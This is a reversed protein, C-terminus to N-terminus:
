RVYLAEPSISREGCGVWQCTLNDIHGSPPSLPAQPLQQVQQAQQQQTAQLLSAVSPHTPDIQAQSM